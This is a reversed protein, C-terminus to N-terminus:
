EWDRWERAIDELERRIREPDLGGGGHYDRYGMRYSANTNDDILKRLAKHQAQLALEVKKRERAKKVLYGYGLDEDKVARQFVRRMRPSYLQCSSGIGTLTEQPVSQMTRTFADAISNGSKLLPYIIDDYCEECVTLEPLGPIIHWLGDFIINDRPCESKWANHTALEIFPLMDPTRRNKSAKDHIDVLLDMYKEFRHSETRLSCMRPVTSDVTEVRTFQGRLSPLLAEIYRRDRQCIFMNSVHKNHINKVGYWAQMVRSSGPCEREQDRITALTRILDLSPRSEKITLLWAIRFWPVSLDCTKRTTTDGRPARVFYDRYRSRGVIDQLCDLCVRVSPCGEITYWGEYNSSYGPRPCPSLTKIIPSSPYEIIGNSRGDRSHPLEVLPETHVSTESFTRRM